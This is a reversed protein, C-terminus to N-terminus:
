HAKSLFYFTKHRACTISSDVLMMMGMEMGADEGNRLPGCGALLLAGNSSVVTLSPRPM